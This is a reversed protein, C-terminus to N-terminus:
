LVLVVVLWADHVVVRDVVLHGGVEIRVGGVVRVLLLRVDLQLVLCVGSGDVVLIGCHHWVVLALVISCGMVSEAVLVWQHALAVVVVRRLVGVVSLSAM